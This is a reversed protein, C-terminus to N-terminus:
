DRTHKLHDATFTLTQLTGAAADAPRWHLMLLDLILDLDHVNIINGDPPPPPVTHFIINHSTHPRFM